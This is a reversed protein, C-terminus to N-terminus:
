PTDAKRAWNLPSVHWRPLNDARFTVDAEEDYDDDFNDNAQRPTFIFGDRISDVLATIPTQEVSPIPPLTRAAVPTVPDVSSRAESSTIRRPTLESDQTAPVAHGTTHDTSAVSSSSPETPSPPLPIEAPQTIKPILPDVVNDRQVRSTSSPKSKTLLGPGQKYDKAAKSPPHSKAKMAAEVRPQNTTSQRALQSMTPKTLRSGEKRHQPNGAPKDAKPHPKSVPPQPKSKGPRKESTSAIHDARPATTVGSSPQSIRETGALTLATMSSANTPMPNPVSQSSPRVPGKSHTMLEAEPLQEPRLVRRAGRARGHVIDDHVQIATMPVAQHQTLGPRLPGHKPKQLQMDGDHRSRPQSEVRKVGLPKSYSAAVMSEASTTSSYSEAPSRSREPAQAIDRSHLTSSPLATNIGSVSLQSGSRSRASAAPNGSRYTSTSRVVEPQVRKNDNGSGTSLSSTPRSTPQSSLGSTAGINLYKRITPTM